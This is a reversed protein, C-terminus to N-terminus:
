NRLPKGTTLLSQMREITKPEGVLSMFAERELELLYDETVKSGPEIDGGTIIHAIKKAIHFEYETIFGGMKMNFLGMEFTSFGNKGPLVLWDAKLPPKYGAEAMGLVMKKAAYIQHDRNMVIKDGPRLFQLDCAEMASLSVKAMGICEFVKQIYPFRDTEWEPPFKALYRKLLNMTGGGAPIVGAGIEVLGMYLEGHACIADAGMAVECGGGLTMGYPAAVVPKSSYRSRMNANQLGVVAQEITAFDGGMALMMIMALNAGVSFSESQNGIVMGRWHDSSEMVDFGDMMMQIVDGDIANMKTHFECCLVGDGLDILSAGSNEKLPKVAQKHLKLNIEQPKVVEPKYSKSVVDWFYRAGNRVVYWSGEGKTVVEKAVEPVKMGEKEMREISEKVGIADWVEFPGLEWAFGFKMANDIQVIDDAIEGIRNAAYISGGATLKWAFQGAKCDSSILTKIREGVDDINRCKKLIDFKPKVTPVYEMTKYDLQLTEKKGEGKLKKYFGQKSKDGFWGNKIMDAWWAPPVFAARQEDNPLAEYSNKFIHDLTDLGVLDATKFTPMKHGMASGTIADVEEVTLGDAAMQHMTGAMGYVGIRNAVFNQTDKGYVIGKGMEAEGFEALAKVVEPSTKPGAVLELLKMYRPPNFFHTILFHQQFEEPFGEVMDQLKIGSTNSSIISGPKRHKAVKEFLSRKIDLREVVVEVIWDCDAIKHLDDDFNGIEVLSSRRNAFFARINGKAGVAKELAGAAFRDRNKKSAKEEETLNPPVIDLLVSPIGANALHAAIGIGMVGAGLVAVKKIKYAM